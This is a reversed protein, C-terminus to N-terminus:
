NLSHTFRKLLFCVANMTITFEEYSSQSGGSHNVNLDEIHRRKRPGWTEKTKEFAYALRKRGKKCTKNHHALRGPQLFSKGCSCLFANEHTSDM